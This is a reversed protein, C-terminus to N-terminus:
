KTCVSNEMELQGLSAQSALKVKKLLLAQAEPVKGANGKWIKMVENKLVFLISIFKM